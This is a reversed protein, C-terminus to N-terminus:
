PSSLNQLAQTLTYMLYEQFLGPYNKVSLPSASYKLSFTLSQGSSSFKYGVESNGPTTAEELDAMFVMTENPSLEVSANVVEPGFCNLGTCFYAHATDPVTSINLQIDNKRITITKTSASINKMEFSHTITAGSSTTHNFVDNNNVVTTGNSVQFVATQANLGAFYLSCILTLHSLKKM